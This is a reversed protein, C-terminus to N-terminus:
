FPIDDDFDKPDDPNVLVKYANNAANAWKSVEDPAKIQGGRIANAVVNSIFPMPLDLHPNFPKNGVPVTGDAAAPLVTAPGGAPVTFSNLWKTEDYKGDAPSISYEFSITQGVYEEIGYQKTTLKGGNIRLYACGGKPSMTFEELVGEGALNASPM